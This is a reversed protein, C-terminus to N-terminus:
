LFNHQSCHFHTTFMNEFTFSFSFITSRITCYEVRNRFDILIILSTVIIEVCWLWSVLVTVILPLSLWMWKHISNFDICPHSKGAEQSCLLSGLSEYFASFKGVLQAATLKELLARRFNSWLSRFGGIRFAIIIYLSFVLFFFPDM